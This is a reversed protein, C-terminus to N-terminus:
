LWIVKFKNRGFIVNAIVTTDTYMIMYVFTFIYIYIYSSYSLKM